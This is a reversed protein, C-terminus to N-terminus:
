VHSDRLRGNMRELIERAEDQRDLGWLARIRLLLDHPGAAGALTVHDLERLSKQHEGTALFAYALSRRARSNGPQLTLLAELIAIARSTKGHRLLVYALMSLYELTTPNV